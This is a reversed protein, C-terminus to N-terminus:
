AAIERGLAADHLEGPVLTQEVAARSTEEVRLLRAERRHLRTRDARSVYHHDAVLARGASRPHALHQMDGGGEDALTQAVVNREDGVAAERARRVSQHDSVHCGLRLTAPWDGRELVPIDDLDVDGGALQADHEGIVLEARTKSCEHRRGRAVRGADQRAVRRVDRGGGFSGHQRSRGDGRSSKETCDSRPSPRTGGRMSLPRPFRGQSAEAVQETWRALHWARGPQSLLEPSTSRLVFPSSTTGAVASRQRTQSVCTPRSGTPTQEWQKPGSSGTYSRSSCRRVTVRSVM